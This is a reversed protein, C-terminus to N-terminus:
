ETIEMIKGNPPIVIVKKGTLKAKAWAYRITSWTGSRMTMQTEKPCAILMDTNDVISKNRQLYAEPTLVVVELSLHTNNGLKCPGIKARKAENTPPHITIKYTGENQDLFYKAAIAHAQADSGICDGHEFQVCKNEELFKLLWSKQFDTMGSQTGTFGINTQM